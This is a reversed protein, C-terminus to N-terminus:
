KKGQNEYFKETLKLINDDVRKLTTNLNDVIVTFERRTVYIDGLKRNDDELKTIRKDFQELKENSILISDNNKSIDNYKNYISTIIIGILLTIIHKRIDAGNM